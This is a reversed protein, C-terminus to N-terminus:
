GRLWTKLGGAISDWATAAAALAGLFVIFVKAGRIFFRWGRWFEILEMLATRDAESLDPCLYRVKHHLDRLREANGPAPGEDLPPWWSPQKM